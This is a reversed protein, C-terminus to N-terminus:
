VAKITIGEEEWEEECVWVFLSIIFEREIKSSMHESMTDEVYVVVREDFLKKVANEEDSSIGQKKWAALIFCTNHM